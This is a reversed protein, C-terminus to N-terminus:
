EVGAQIRLLDAHTSNELGKLTNLTRVHKSLGSFKCIGKRIKNHSHTLRVFNYLSTSAGYDDM